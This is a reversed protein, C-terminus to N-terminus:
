FFLKARMDSVMNTMINKRSFKSIFDYRASNCIILNRFALIAGEVDCPHFVTCNNIEKRIFESAYGSVGALIPKGTAGYEFIKSPLVKKFADVDNLHLFLVDADAYEKVIENRSVPPVLHVNTCNLSNLADLLNKCRAGDGILKFEAINELRKALKPIINELGQSLGMNGAYVIRLPTNKLEVFKNASLLDINQLFEDDIGNTFYSKTLEPYRDVFYKEFGFSVLNINKAQRLSIREILLFIPLFIITLIKPFVDKITDTFIDRIDLYLPVKKKSAVYKGLFCTMLRGSTAIVLDYDRNKIRRLAGFFYLIYAMVQGSIGSNHNNNVKIRQIEISGNVENTESPVSYSSYRNPETTIVDIKIERDKIRSLAQVLAVARFSGASLDPPYYFSLLLIKFTM